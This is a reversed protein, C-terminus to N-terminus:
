LGIARAAEVNEATDDFFVMRALPVGVIAAIARFAAAEPKRAGLECSVFVRDFVRLVDAYRSSWGEHHAANSNSFAYLRTRTKLRRLLAAMGPIEPGWIANWGELFAADSLDIGLTERLAAFYAAADIEGREHRQYADDHSFRARLLAADCGAHAAWRAFVREFDIRFVVNGLDFLLADVPGPTM